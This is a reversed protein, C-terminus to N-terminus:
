LGGPSAETVIRPKKQRYNIERELGLIALVSPSPNTKKGNRLRCLYGHDLKTARAAARLGGHRKILAEIAKQVRDM